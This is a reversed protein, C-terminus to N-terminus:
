KEEKPPEIPMWYCFFKPDYCWGLRQGWWVVYYNGRGDYVLYKGEEKPPEEVRHWPSAAPIHNHNRNGDDQQGDQVETMKAGCNPCYKSKGYTNWGGCASCVYKRKFFPKDDEDYRDVWEGLKPLQAKAEERDEPIVKIEGLYHGYNQREVVGRLYDCLTIRDFSAAERRHDVFVYASMEGVMRSFVATTDGRVTGKITETASEGVLWLDGVKINYRM